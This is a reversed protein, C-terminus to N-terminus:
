IIFYSQIIISKEEEEEEIKIKKKKIHTATTSEDNNIEQSRKIKRPTETNSPKILPSAIRVIPPPPSPSSSITTPPSPSIDVLEDPSHIPSLIRSKNEEKIPNTQITLPKKKISPSPPPPPQSTKKKILNPTPPNKNTSHIPM